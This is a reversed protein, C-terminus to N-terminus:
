CNAHLTIAAWEGAFSTEVAMALKLQEAAKIFADKVEKAEKDLVGSLCLTGRPNIALLLTACHQCLLDAQLNALLLDTSRPLLAEGIDACHYAVRGSLGNLGANEDAIRVADPDSDFGSVKGFGLAKAALSLIGSGCGADICSLNAVENDEHDIFKILTEICLRTTEHNGTGFAMGPDLYLAQHGDPVFHNGREWTPVVHLLGIQWAKFHEKYAEEWEEEKLISTAPEDPLESFHLRLAKWACLAENRDDFYGSLAGEGSLRNVVLAWPSPEWECLQDEIVGVLDPDIECTICIM